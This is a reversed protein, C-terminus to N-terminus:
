ERGVRSESGKVQRARYYDAAGPHLPIPTASAMKVTVADSLQGNKVLRSFTTFWDATVRRVESAGLDERCLLLSEIGVTKLPLNQQPYTAPPILSPRMFPYLERLDDIQKGELPVIRANRKVANSILTSPQGALIVIADVSGEQLRRFSSPFGEEQIRVSQPGMGHAALLLLAARFSGSGHLGFAVRAGRLDPVGHISSRRDVLLYIPSVQVLAVGRLRRLAAGEDPLRGAFAEYAINAFTFGCDSTGKELALVSSIAGETTDIEAGYPPVGAKLANALETGLGHFYGGRTGVSLRITTLLVPPEASPSACSISIAATAILCVQLWVVRQGSLPLQDRSV